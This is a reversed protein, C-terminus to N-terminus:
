PAGERELQVRMVSTPSTEMGAADLAQKVRRLAETRVNLRDSERQNVWGYFDILVASGSVQQILARPAPTALVGPIQAITQIGLQRAAELDAVLSVQLTFTFRREPYRSYNVIVEKFVMANTLRLYEGDYTKLETARISLGQVTGERAGIAVVDGLEFPRRLSLLLGALYNEAIDRFAFGVAM